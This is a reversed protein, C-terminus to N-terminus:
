MEKRLREGWGRRIPVMAVDGTMGGGEGLAGASEVGQIRQRWQASPDLDLVCRGTALAVIRFLVRM